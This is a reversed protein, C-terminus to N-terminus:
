DIPKSAICFASVGFPANLSMLIKNELMLLNLLAKNSSPISNIDGHTNEEKSKKLNDLKRKLYLPFFLIVNWYSKRDISFGTSSLKTALEKVTYRRYHMNVEDHQSWLFMYAPVFVYLKGGPKLAKYWNQLALKDDKLHELNDSAIIIDFQHDFKPCHGDMVYAHEIGNNKCNNIAEQSIDLGYLNSKQFGNKSLDKLLVGSSCGIDLISSNKDTTKLLQAIFNRRAKFWFHDVEIDHYQEEYAQQM